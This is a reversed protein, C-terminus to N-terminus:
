APATPALLALPPADDSDPPVIPDRCFRGSRLPLIHQVSNHVVYSQPTACSTGRLALSMVGLSRTHAVEAYRAADGLAVARNIAPNTVPNSDLSPVPATAVLAASFASAPEVAALEARWRSM